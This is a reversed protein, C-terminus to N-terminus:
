CLDGFSEPHRVDIQERRELGRRSRAATRVVEVEVLVPIGLPVGDRRVGEGVREPAQDRVVALGQGPPPSPDDGTRRAPSASGSAPWCGSWPTRARPTGTASYGGSRGKSTPTRM